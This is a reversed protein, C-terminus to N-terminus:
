ILNKKLNKNPKSWFCIKTLFDKGFNGLFGLDIFNLIINRM